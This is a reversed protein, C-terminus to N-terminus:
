FTGKSFFIDSFGLDHSGCTSINGRTEKRFQAAM